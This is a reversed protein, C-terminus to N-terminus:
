EGRLIFVYPKGDAYSSVVMVGGDAMPIMEYSPAGFMHVDGNPCIALPRGAHDPLCQPDPPTPSDLMEAKGDRVFFIYPKGDAYSSEVLIGNPFTTMKYSPASFLHVDGNPCIALPRGAHNPLCELNEHQKGSSSAPPQAPEPEETSVPSPTSAPAPTAAAVPTSVLPARTRTPTPTAIPTGTPTPEDVSSAPTAPRRVRTSTATATPTPTPTDPPPAVGFMTERVSYCEQRSGYPGFTETAGGEYRVDFRWAGADGYCDSVGVSVPAPTATSTATHTATATSTATATATATATSTATATATATNTPTDTATATPLPTPTHNNVEIARAAECEAQTDFDVTRLPNYLAFHWTGGISFCEGVEHARIPRTTGLAALIAICVLVVGLGIMIARTQKM